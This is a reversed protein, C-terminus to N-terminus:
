TPPVQGSKLAQITSQDQAVALQDVAVREQATAAALCALSSPGQQQCNQQQAALIAQDQALAQQDAQLQSLEGQLVEEGAPLSTTPAASICPTGCSCQAATQGPTCTTAPDNAKHAKVTTTTSTSTSTSTASISVQRHRLASAPPRSAACASLVLVVCATLALGISWRLM